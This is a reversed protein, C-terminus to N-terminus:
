MWCARGGVSPDGVGVAAPAPIPRRRRSTTRTTPISSFSGTPFRGTPSPRLRHAPRITLQSVVMEMRHDSHCSAWSSVAVARGTSRSNSCFRHPFSLIPKKYPSVLVPGAGIPTMPMAMFIIWPILPMIGMPILVNPAAAAAAAAAAGRGGGVTGTTDKMALATALDECHRARQHQHRSRAVLRRRGPDM